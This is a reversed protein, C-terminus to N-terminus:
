GAFAPQVLHGVAAFVPAGMTLLGGLVLFTRPVSVEGETPNAMVLSVLAAFLGVGLYCLHQFATAPSGHAYQQLASGAAWFLLVLALMALRHPLRFSATRSM